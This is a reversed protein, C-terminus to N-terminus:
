ASREKNQKNDVKVLVDKTPQIQHEVNLHQLILMQVKALHDVQEKVANGGKIAPYLHNELSSVRDDLCDLHAGVTHDAEDASDDNKSARSKGVIYGIIIALGVLCTVVIPDM